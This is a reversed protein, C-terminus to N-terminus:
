FAAAVALVGRRRRSSPSRCVTSVPFATEVCWRVREPDIGTEVAARRIAQDRGLGQAELRSVRRALSAVAEQPTLPPGHMTDTKRNPKAHSRNRFPRKDM